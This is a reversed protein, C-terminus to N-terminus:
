RPASWTTNIFNTGDVTYVACHTVANAPISSYNCLVQSPALTFLAPTNVVFMKGAGCDGFSLVGGDPVTVRSVAPVPIDELLALTGPGAPFALAGSPTQIGGATLTIAPPTVVGVGDSSFIIEPNDTGTLTFREPETGPVPYIFLEVWTDSFVIEVFGGYASHYVNGGAFESVFDGHADRYLRFQIHEDPNAASAVTLMTGDPSRGFRYSEEGHSKVKVSGAALGNTNIDIGTKPYRIDLLTAMPSSPGSPWGYVGPLHGPLGHMVADRGVTLYSVGHKGLMLSDKMVWLYEDDGAPAVRMWWGASTIDAPSSKSVYGSLDPKPIANTAAAVIDSVQAPTAAGTQAATVAHPNLLEEAWRMLGIYRAYWRKGEEAVVCHVAGDAGVAWREGMAYSGSGEPGEVPEPPAERTYRAFQPTVERWVARGARYDDKLGEFADASACGASLAVV